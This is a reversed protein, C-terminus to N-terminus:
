CPTRRFRAVFMGDCPGDWPWIWRRPEAREDPALPNSFPDPEFRRDRDLFAAVVDATERTTLTCVSYVLAGGPRVRDAAKMLLELQVEAHAAVASEPTRWRADPNRSWTGLGSCPADVLVGDFTRGPTPEGTHVFRMGAEMARRRLEDLIGPRIDSCLVDGQNRMLDALHISKGGAGACVDWWQGGPKPACALAVCQSALDQIIFGARIDAPLSRLASSGPLHAAAPIHPHPQARIGAQALGRLVSNERGALLHIWTPPRRQFSEVCRRFGDQPKDSLPIADRVWAPLLVEQRVPNGDLWAAASRAKNDMSADGVPQPRPFSDRALIEAAPHETFADLYYAIACAKRPQENEISALWGRWRFFSFVLESLFRRDRSGLERHEKFFRALAADAPVHLAVEEILRHVLDAGIAALREAGRPSFGSRHNRATDM